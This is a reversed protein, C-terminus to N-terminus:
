SGRSDEENRRHTKKANNESRFQMKEGKNNTQQNRFETDGFDLNQGEVSSATIKLIGRRLEFQSGLKVSESSLGMKELNKKSNMLSRRITM